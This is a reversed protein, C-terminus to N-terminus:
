KEAKEASRASKVNEYEILASPIRNSTTDDYCPRGISGRSEKSNSRKQKNLEVMQASEDYMLNM